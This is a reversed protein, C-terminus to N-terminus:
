DRLVNAVRQAGTLELAESSRQTLEEAARRAAEALRRSHEVLWARRPRGASRTAM